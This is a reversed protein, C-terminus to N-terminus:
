KLINFLKLFDNIRYKPFKSSAIVAETVAINNDERPKIFCNLKLELFKVYVKV